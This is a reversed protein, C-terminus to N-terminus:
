SCERLGVMKALNVQVNVDFQKTNAETTSRVDYMCINSISAHRLRLGVAVTEQIYYVQSLRKVKSRNSSLGTRLGQRAFPRSQEM